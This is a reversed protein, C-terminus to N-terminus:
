AAAHEWSRERAAFAGDPTVAVPPPELAAVSSPVPDAANGARTSITLGQNPPIPFGITLIAVDDNVARDRFITDYIIAATPEDPSQMAQFAAQVFIREGEIADRSHEIAGDTYLVLIAGPVSQVRQTQYAYAASVALPLGGCELWRPARGPEILLPPPHGAIALVFEFNRYDAFGAIATVMSTKQAMLDGNAHALISAPDTALVASSVFSHRARNMTVAAELGHGAVDGIAFLVRNGPVEFVDYWDGGVKTEEGAPVYTASLRLSPLAPLPRQFLAGQLTDAIRKETRYASRLEIAAAREEDAEVRERDLRDLFRLQAVALVAAFAVISAIAVLVFIGVRSIARQMDDNVSLRRRNLARDSAAIERRFRDLLRKGRRQVDVPNGTRGAVLPEAVTAIWTRNTDAADRVAASVAPLSLVASFKQLLALTQPLRARGDRYPELFLRERTVAYGRVGTEEDLQEKVAQALLARTTHVDESKQFADAIVSHVALGAAGFVVIFCALAAIAAVLTWRAQRAAGM